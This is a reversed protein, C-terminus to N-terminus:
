GLRPSPPSPSLGTFASPPLWAASLVPSLRWPHSLGLGPGVDCGTVGDGESM